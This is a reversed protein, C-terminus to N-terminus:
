YAGRGNLLAPITRLLIVVDRRLSWEHVYALDLRARADGPLEHRGSVQWLGTIGPRMRLRNTLQGDLEVEYPKLPRPGVISMHGRLVNVFQPLEDLSSRRLFKGFRTIRPDHPNKLTFGWRADTHVHTSEYREADHVMTRFKWVSFTKGHRGVRTQKFTAPGRSDLRIIVALGALIPSCVVLAVVSLVIDVVRKVSERYIRSRSPPAAPALARRFEDDLPELGRVGSVPARALASSARQERELTM